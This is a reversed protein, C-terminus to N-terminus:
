GELAMLPTVEETSETECSNPSVISALFGKYGSACSSTLVIQSIYRLLAIIGFAIAVKDVTVQNDENRWNLAETSGWIAGSCGLVELTFTIIFGLLSAFITDIRQSPNSIAQMPYIIAKCIPTNPQCRLGLRVSALVIFTIAIARCTSENDQDRWGILESFGWIAGPAGLVELIFIFLCGIIAAMKQNKGHEDPAIMAQSFKMLCGPKPNKALWAKAIYRGLGLLIFAISIRDWYVSNNDDKLNFADSCGWIPAGMGLVELTFTVPIGIILGTKEYKM